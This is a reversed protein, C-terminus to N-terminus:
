AQGERERQRRENAEASIAANWGSAWALAEEMTYWVPADGSSREDYWAM